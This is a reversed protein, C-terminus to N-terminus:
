SCSTVVSVFHNNSHQFTICDCVYLVYHSMFKDDGLLRGQVDTVHSLGLMLCLQELYDRTLFKHFHRSDHEQNVTTLKLKDTLLWKKLLMIVSM